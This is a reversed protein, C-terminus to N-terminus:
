RLAADFEGIARDYDGLRGYAIGRNFYVIALNNGAYRGSGVLTTCAQVADAPATNVGACGQEDALMPAPTPPQANATTAFAFLAWLALCSHILPKPMSKDSCGQRTQM